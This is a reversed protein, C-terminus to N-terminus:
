QMSYLAIGQSKGHFVASLLYNLAECWVFLYIMKLVMNAENLEGFSVVKIEVTIEVPEGISFYVLSLILKVFQM